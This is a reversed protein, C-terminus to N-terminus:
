RYKGYTRCTEFMAEVNERKAGMIIANTDFIYGGGPGCTDILWKVRDVVQQKTGWELLYVPFNGSLCAIDGLVAKAQQMDVEEFHIIAKGRPLDTLAELRSNYPGETYLIPTVGLDILADAIKRFPRWYLREYYEPSIFGDMGKHFPFDVRKVPLDVNRFRKEFAAIQMDALMYCVEEVMDPCEVMDEFMGMTGRFYDSLIDFPVEGAGSSWPPIGEATLAESLKASYQGAEANYQALKALKEYAALASPSFLGSLVGTNLVVTPLFSISSLGALGPFARPIYKRLMFGTFDKLLEPYEEQLLYEQEIVQYICHDPVKGGAKGPWDLMTFETLDCAAGSSMRTGGCVADPQFEKYFDLAAQAAKPYDYMSDKFTADKSLIFPLTGIHPVLPVADPEKLMVADNVRQIRAQFRESKEM